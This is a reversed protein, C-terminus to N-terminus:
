QVRVEDGVRILNPHRTPPNLAILEALKVDYRKAIAWLTDGKVVRHYRVSAAAAAPGSSQGAQSTVRKPVTSYRSIDEWFTFSYKVYDPRPQQQVRLAVLYASTTQWLPHILLGPGGQYFVNALRGFQAYAEPGVFEGEGEMVRCTRDLDQLQYLGFPIKNVAMERRYEMTYIRPNHPWTYNKYRMPTLTM